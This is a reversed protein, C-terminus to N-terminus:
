SAQGLFSGSPGNAFHDIHLCALAVVIAQSLDVLLKHFRDAEVIWCPLFPKVDPM